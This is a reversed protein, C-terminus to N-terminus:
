KEAVQGRFFRTCSCFIAVGLNYRQTAGASLSKCPTLAHITRKAAADKLQPCFVLGEATKM